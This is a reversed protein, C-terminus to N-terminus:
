IMFFIYFVIFLKLIFVILGGDKRLWIETQM